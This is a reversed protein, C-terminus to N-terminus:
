EPAFETASGGPGKKAISHFISEVSGAFRRSDTLASALMRGRLTARLGALAGPDRALEAAIQAYSDRDFAALHKLGLNNM